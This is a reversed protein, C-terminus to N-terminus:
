APDLFSVTGADSVKFFACCSKRVPGVLDQIGEAVAKDAVPRGFSEVVLDLDQFSDREPYSTEVPETLANKQSCGSETVIKASPPKNAM